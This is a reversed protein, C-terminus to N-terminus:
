RTSEHSPLPLRVRLQTGHETSQIEFSGGLEEARERMSGLGVGAPATTALGTGDDAVELLLAKPDRRLDVRCTRARAHQRANNVAELVIRYAAVEIAAPLPDLPEAANFQWTMGDRGLGANHQEACQRLATVLGFQDLTPPRLGDVLRRVEAIETRAQDALQGVLEAARQPDDDVLDRALELKMALTALSPGLGDHLDRRLRRREEERAAVLRERSQQLELNMVVAQVLAGVQTGVDELLQRDRSGFPDRAPDVELMLQGLRAGAVELLVSTPAGRPQGISTAIAHTSTNVEVAAYSLRLSSCLTALMEHLAGDPSTRPALRRLQSVVRQPFARDGYVVRGLLRRVALALPLLLLAVVGGAIMSGVSTESALDVTTVSTLFLGGVVTAVLVQLLAHRLVSDIEALRHGVLAAALGSLFLPAALLTILDWQLLPRGSVVAPLDGLLVRTVLATLAGLLLLRQAIRDQRSTARLYGEGQVLVVFPGLAAATWTLATVLALETSTLVWLLCAILPLLAVGLVMPWNRLLPRPRPFALTLVLLAGVGLSGLLLGGVHPWVGRSGLVDLIGLGLPGATMACPLFAAAALAARAAPERSRLWFVLSAVVLGLVALAFPAPQALVASGLAYRGPSVTVVIKRDLGAGPRQVRYRVPRDSSWEVEPASAGVVPIGNVELVQDGPRLPSDGNVRGVTPAERWGPVTLSATPTSVLTGDSPGAYAAITIWAAPVMWAVAVVTMRHLAFMDHGHDHRLPVVPCWVGRSGRLEPSRLRLHGLDWERQSRGGADVRSVLGRSTLGDWADPHPLSPLGPGYGLTRRM